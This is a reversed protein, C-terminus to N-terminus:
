QEEEDEVADMATRLASELEEVRKTGIRVSGARWIQILVCKRMRLQAYIRGREYEGPNQRQMEKRAGEDEISVDDIDEMPIAHTCGGRKITVNEYTVTVRTNMFYLCLIVILPAMALCLMKYADILSYGAQLIILLMVLLIIVPIGVYFNTKYSPYMEYTDKPVLPAYKLHAPMKVEPWPLRESYSKRMLTFTREEFLVM